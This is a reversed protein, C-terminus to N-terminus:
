QWTALIERFVDNLTPAPAAEVRDPLHKHETFVLPPKHAANDYRFILQKQADQYHYSYMLKDVQDSVADLYEKFHLASNDTFHVAGQVFAQDGARLDTNLTTNIVFPTTSLHSIVAQLQDIYQQLSM